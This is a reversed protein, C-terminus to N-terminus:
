LSTYNVTQVKKCMIAAKRDCFKGLRDYAEDGTLHGKFNPDFRAYKQRQEEEQEKNTTIRHWFSSDRQVQVKFISRSHQLWYVMNETLLLPHQM